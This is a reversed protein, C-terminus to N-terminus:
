DGSPTRAMDAEYQAKDQLLQEYRTQYKQQLQKDAELEEVNARRIEDYDLPWHYQTLQVKSETNSGVTYVRWPVLPCDDNAAVVKTGPPFYNMDIIQNTM